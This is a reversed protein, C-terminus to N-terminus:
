KIELGAGLIFNEVISFYLDSKSFEVAAAAAAGWLSAGAGV